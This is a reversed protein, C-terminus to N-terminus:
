LLFWWTDLGQCIQHFMLHHTPPFSPGSRKMNWQSPHGMAFRPAEPLESTQSIPAKPIIRRRLPQWLLSLFGWQVPQTKLDEFGRRLAPMTDPDYVESTCAAEEVGVAGSSFLLLLYICGLDVDFKLM